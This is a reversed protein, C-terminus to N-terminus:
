RSGAPTPTARSCSPWRRPARRPSAIASASRAGSTPCATRSAPDYPPDAFRPDINALNPIKAHDLPLLIDAVIMKAVYDDTPVIVDYGPNSERLKAFLEDNSAFLDYRVQDRDRRHLGRPDDRRHLHGLQLRQGTAVPRLGAPELGPPRDRGDALRGSLPPPQHSYPRRTPPKPCPAGRHSLRRWTPRRTGTMMGIVGDLYVSGAPRRGPLGHDVCM